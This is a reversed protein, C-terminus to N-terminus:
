MNIPERTYELGFCVKIMFRKFWGIHHYVAINSHTPEHSLYGIVKPYERIIAEYEM